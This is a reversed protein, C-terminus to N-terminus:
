AHRLKHMRNKFLYSAGACLVGLAVLIISAPEPVASTHPGTNPGGGPTTGPTGGVPVTVVSPVKPTGTPSVIPPTVRHTDLRAGRLIGLLGPCEHTLAFLAPDEQRIDVLTRWFHSDPLKGDHNKKYERASRLQGRLVDRDIVIVHREGRPLRLAHISWGEGVKEPAAKIADLLVGV